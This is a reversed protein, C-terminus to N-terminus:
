GPQAVLNCGKQLRTEVKCGNKLRTAAAVPSINEGSRLRKGAKKIPASLASKKKQHGFHGIERKQPESIDRDNIKELRRGHTVSCIM